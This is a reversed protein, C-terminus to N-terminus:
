FPIKVKMACSTIIRTSIPVSKTFMQSNNWSLIDKFKAATSSGSFKTPPDLNYIQYILTYM